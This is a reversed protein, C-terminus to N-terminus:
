SVSPLPSTNTLTVRQSWGLGVLPPIALALRLVRQRRGIVHAHDRCFRWLLVASAAAMIVGIALAVATLPQAKLMAPLLQFIQRGFLLDSPYLPDSLYLQKQHSM